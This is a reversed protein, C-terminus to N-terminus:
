NVKRSFPCHVNKHLHCIPLGRAFLASTLRNLGLWDQNISTAHTQLIEEYRVHVCCTYM